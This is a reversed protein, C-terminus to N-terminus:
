ERSTMNQQTRHQQLLNKKRIKNDFKKDFNDDCIINIKGINQQVNLVSETNLAENDM